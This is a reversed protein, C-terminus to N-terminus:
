KMIDCGNNFNGALHYIRHMQSDGTRHYMRRGYSEPAVPINKPVKEVYLLASRSVERGLDIYKEDSVWARPDIPVEVINRKDIVETYGMMVSPENGVNLGIMYVKDKRVGDFERIRDFMCERYDKSRVDCESNCQQNTNKATAATIIIVAEILTTVININM